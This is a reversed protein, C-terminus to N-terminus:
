QTIPERIVPQMPQGQNELVHYTARVQVKNHMPDSTPPNYGAPPNEAVPTGPYPADINQERHPIYPQASPPASLMQLELPGRFGYKHEQCYRQIAGELEDRGLFPLLRQREEDNFNLEVIYNNPAYVKHDLGEVKNDELAALIRHLVDRPQLGTSQGPSAGGRLNQAWQELAQDIREIANM